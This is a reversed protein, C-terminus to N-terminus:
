QELRTKSLVMEEDKQNKRPNAIDAGDEYLETPCNPEYWCWFCRTSVSMEAVAVLATDVASSLKNFM